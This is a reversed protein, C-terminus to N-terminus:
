SGWRRRLLSNHPPPSQPPRLGPSPRLTLGSTARRQVSAKLDEYALRWGNGQFDFYPISRLYVPLEFDDLRAPLVVIPHGNIGRTVATKLEHRVWDCKVSDASLAPVVFDVPRASHSLRSILFVSASMDVEDIYPTIRDHRLSGALRYAFEHDAYSYAIVIHPRDDVTQHHNQADM